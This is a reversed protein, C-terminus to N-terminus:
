LAHNEAGWKRRFIEAGGDLAAGGNSRFTSPLSILFESFGTLVDVVEDFLYPYLQLM